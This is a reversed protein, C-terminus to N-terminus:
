SPFHGVRSIKSDYHNCAPSHEDIRNFRKARDSYYFDERFKICYMFWSGDHETCHLSGNCTGCTMKIM